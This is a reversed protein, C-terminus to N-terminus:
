KISIKGMLLVIIMEKRETEYNFLLKIIFYIEDLEKCYINLFIHIM